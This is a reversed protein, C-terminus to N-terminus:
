RVLQRGGLLWCGIGIVGWVAYLPLLSAHGALGLKEGLNWAHAVPDRQTTVDPEVFAQHNISLRGSKFSPWLLDSVPRKYNEPPQATTSVAVFSLAAGYLAVAALAGRAAPSARSWLPALALSLFPLAPAMHRPGYSWGGHWYVYAANFLLYYIAIAAAAVGPRRATRSSILLVFGSPAAALVPALYLLGRFRGFLLEGLVWLKPHTIGLFGEKMGEFGAENAYGVRLPGGFAAQNYLGLVAACVLAGGAVGAIVRGRRAPGGPFAPTCALLAIIAAPVAAPYETITAWGAAGGVAVALLWERRASSPERLAVAAAYAALLCATALAHGYFLTAYCWAPTGLGFVAAAFVGASRTAGLRRALWLVLLAALVTPLGATVVTAIYSVTAIGARSAPEPVVARAIAVPAIAVFALGPAKDSYLHGDRQALDGTVFRGHFRVTDDIRLTGHEVIARVLAFRSNQNWGGAQYFYAYGAFLCAAVFLPTRQRRFAGIVGGSVM